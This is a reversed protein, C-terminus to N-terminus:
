RADGGDGRMAHAYDNIDVTHRKSDVNGICHSRLCVEECAISWGEQIVRWVLVPEEPTALTVM